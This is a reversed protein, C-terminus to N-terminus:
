KCEPEPKLSKRLESTLKNLETEDLKPLLLKMLCSICYMSSTVGTTESLKLISIEKNQLKERIDDPIKNFDWLNNGILGDSDPIIINGLIERFQNPDDSEKHCKDCVYIPKFKKM